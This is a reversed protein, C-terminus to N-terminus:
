SNGTERIEVTECTNRITACSDLIVERLWDSQPIDRQVQGSSDLLVLPVQQTLGCVCVCVCLSVPVCLCSTRLSIFSSVSHMAM